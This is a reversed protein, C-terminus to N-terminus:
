RELEFKFILSAYASFMPDISYTVGSITNDAQIDIMRAGLELDVSKGLHFNFGADGGYYMESFERTVNSRDKKEADFQGASVGIFLNAWDTVNIMYQLEAGITNASEFDKSNYYRGSIFLRYNRNEAGIKFGGSGLVCTKDYSLTSSNSSVDTQAYGGEFGVLSKTDDAVVVSSLLLSSIIINKLNKKM